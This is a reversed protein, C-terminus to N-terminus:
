EDMGLRTWIPQSGSRSGGRFGLTGEGPEGEDGSTQSSGAMQSGLTAAM